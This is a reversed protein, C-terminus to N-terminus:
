GKSIVWSSGNWVYPTAIVWSSGNWIYPTATVWSSGNWIKCAAPSNADISITTNNWKGTGSGAWFDAYIKVTISLPNADTHNVTLTQNQVRWSKTTNHNFSTNTGDSFDQNTGWPMSYIRTTTGNVVIDIYCTNMLWTPSSTRGRGQLSWTITTVGPSTHVASWTWRYYAGSYSKGESTTGSSVYSDCYGSMAM